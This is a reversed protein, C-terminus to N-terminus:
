KFCGNKHSMTIWWPPAEFAGLSELLRPRHALGEAGWVWGGRERRRKDEEFYLICLYPIKSGGPPHNHLTFCYVPSSGLMDLYIKIKVCLFLCVRHCNISEVLVCLPAYHLNGLNLTQWNNQKKFCSSSYCDSKWREGSEIVAAWVAKRGTWLSTWRVNHCESPLAPYHASRPPHPIALWVTLGGPWVLM